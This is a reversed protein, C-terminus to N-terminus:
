PSATTPSAELSTPAVNKGPFAAIVLSILTLVGPLIGIALVLALRSPGGPSAVFQMVIGVVMPGLASGVKEGALWLGTLIGSGSRGAAEVRNASAALSVFGIVQVGGFGAGGLVLGLQFIVNPSGALAVLLDGLVMLTAALRWANPQGIHKLGFPWIMTALLGAGVNVFLATGLAAPPLKYLGQVLFPLAASVSSSALVLLVFSILITLYPRDSLGSLSLRTPTTRVGGERNCTYSTICVTIAIFCVSGVALGMVSYGGWGLIVPAVAAGILGGIFSIAIRTSVLGRRRIESDELDAPLAAYPVAFFSFGFVSVFYLVAAIWGGAPLRTPLTFVAWLGLGSAIAGVFMFWRRHSEGKVKVHDSIHGIIPDSFISVIKPTLIMLGALAPAVHVATTLYYLLLVSPVVFFIGTGLSGVGFSLQRVFVGRGKAPVGTVSSVIM